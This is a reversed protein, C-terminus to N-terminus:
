HHAPRRYQLVDLLGNCPTGDPCWDARVWTSMFEYFYVESTLKVKESCTFSFTGGTLGVLDMHCHNDLTGGMGLSQVTFGFVLEDNAYQPVLLANGDVGFLFQFGATGQPPASTDLLDDLYVTSQAQNGFADDPSTATAYARMPAYIIGSTRHSTIPGDTANSFTDAFGDGSGTATSGIGPTFTTPLGYNPNGDATDNEFYPVQGQVWSVSLIDAHAFRCIGQALICFALM